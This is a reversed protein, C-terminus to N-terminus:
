KGFNRKIEYFSSIANDLDQEEIEPWFKDLFYLESYATQYTLFGSLRETGSTRVVLDPSYFDSYLFKQFSKEDLSSLNLSNSKFNQAIKKAADVIEAQGSYGIALNITKSKYKATYDEVEEIKNQISKPLLETRGIFKLRIKNSNILASNKVKELENEFIKFLLSLEEKKRQLNELSLMYFSGVKIEKYATLWELVKWAKQTGVEYAKFLPIGTKLAYRRNGDPIFAISNLETM